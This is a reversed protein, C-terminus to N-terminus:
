HPVISKLGRGHCLINEDGQGRKITAILKDKRVANSGGTEYVYFIEQGNEIVGVVKVGLNWGRIHGHIGSDKSGCKTVEGGQGQISAYFTSM